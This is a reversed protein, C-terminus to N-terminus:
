YNAEFRREFEYAIAEDVQKETFGNQANFHHVLEHALDTNHRTIGIPTIYIREAIPLYRGVVGGPHPSFQAPDNIEEHSIICIQLDEISTTTTRGFSELIFAPYLSETIHVTKAFM